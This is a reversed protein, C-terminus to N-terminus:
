ISLALALINLLTSVAITIRRNARPSLVPSGSAWSSHSQIEEDDDMDEEKDDIKVQDEERSFLGRRWRGGCGGHKFESAMDM